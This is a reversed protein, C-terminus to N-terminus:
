RFSSYDDILMVNYFRQKENSRVTQNENITTISTSRIGSIRKISEDFIDSQYRYTSISAAKRIFYIASLSESDSFSCIISHIIKSIKSVDSSANHISFYTYNGLAWQFIYNLIVFNIFIM